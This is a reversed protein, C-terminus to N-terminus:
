PLTSIVGRLQRVICGFRSFGTAIALRKDAEYQTLRRRLVRQPALYVSIKTIATTTAVRNRDLDRRPEGGNAVDWGIDRPSGDM